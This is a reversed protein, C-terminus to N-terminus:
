VTPSVCELQPLPMKGENRCVWENLDMPPLAVSGANPGAGVARSSRYFYLPSVIKNRFLLNKGCGINWYSNNNSGYKQCFIIFTASENNYKGFKKYMPSGEHTDISRSYTGNVEPVGCSDITITKIQAGNNRTSSRAELRRQVEAEIQQRQRSGSNEVRCTPAPLVGSNSIVIWGNEPPVMANNPPSTYHVLHSTNNNVNWTGIFWKFSGRYIALTAGALGGLKVYVTAPTRNYTGNVHTNGCGEVIIQDFRNNNSSSPSSLSTSARRVSNSQGATVTRNRNNGGGAAPRIDGGAHAVAVLVGLSSSDNNNSNERSPPSVSVKRKKSKTIDDMKPSDLDDIEIVEWRKEAEALRSQAENMENTSASLQSKAMNNTKTVTDMAKKANDLTRKANDIGKKADNYMDRTSSALQQASSVQKKAAALRLKAAEIEYRGESSAM